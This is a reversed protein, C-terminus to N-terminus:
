NHTLRSPQPAEPEPPKAAGVENGTRPSRSGPVQPRYYDRAWRLRVKHAKERGSNISVLDTLLQHYDIAVDGSRLLQIMQRLYYPLHQPNVSLLQTFRRQASVREDPLLRMAEGVTRGRATNGHPHLAFLGAVLLWLEQERQPPDHPFIVDYAEAQQGPSAFSRRLRALTRRAEGSLRYDESTLARHLWYLKRVFARRREDLSRIQEM